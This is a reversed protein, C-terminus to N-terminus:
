RARLLIAGIALSCAAMALCAIYVLWPGGLHLMGAGASPAAAAALIPSVAVAGSIVGFGRRGLIEAVLVPRLISILGMGAGQLGAFAFILAPLVGAALLGVSALAIAFLSFLTARGNGIRAANLLLMLRGLVQSPGICAAAFTAAAASAGRDEFLVLVYTILVGHNLYILGFMLAIAWFAPRRLAARLADPAPESRVAGAREQRRLMRVAVGNVPAALLLLGAFAVLAAQGGVARGLADGLPFALTGAFGAVLTVKTIAGRAQDGTRRTLFAFCTEYMSGAQAVGVAVWLVMWVPVSPAFGLGAVGAAALVPAYTLMEGGMGRDVWRGSFPTLAAMTLFGLTPGLALEAVSWGTEAQLDPL